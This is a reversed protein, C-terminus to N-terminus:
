GGRDRLSVMTALEIARLFKKSPKYGMRQERKQMRGKTMDIIREGKIWQHASWEEKHIGYVLYDDDWIFWPKTM